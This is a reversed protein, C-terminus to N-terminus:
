VGKEIWEQAAKMAFNLNYYKSWTYDNTCIDGTSVIFFQKENHEVREIIVRNCPKLPKKSPEDVGFGPATYSYSNCDM